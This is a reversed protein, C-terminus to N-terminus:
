PVCPNTQSPSPLAVGSFSVARTQFGLGISVGDCPKSPDQTGDNLIDSAQAVQALISDITPGSCLSPDFSGAMRQIEALLQATEVVGGLQGTTASQHDPALDMAVRAQRIDLHMTFGTLRIQLQVTAGTSGSDWHNMVVSSTPFISKASTIDAPNTLGEPAVPWCDNGDLKPPAGLEAGTYIKSVLSAQNATAGLGELDLILTYDGAAIAQNAQGSFDSTIGLFIPLVNKGFANDIGNNGDPYVSKPSANNLPKCLDTSTDTSVKGDVNFGYQRWGNVKNATGDFNTDGYYFKTVALVAGNKPVCGPVSGGVGSSGVSSVSGGAGSQGSGSATAVVGTSGQTDGSSSGGSGTSGSTEVSSGCGYGAACALAFASSLALSRNKM